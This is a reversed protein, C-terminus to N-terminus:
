IQLLRKRMTQQPKPTILPNITEPTNYRLIRTLFGSPKAM